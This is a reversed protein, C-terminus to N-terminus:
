RWDSEHRCGAVLEAVTRYRQIYAIAAPRRDPVGDTPAWYSRDDRIVGEVLSRAGQLDVPKKPTLRVFIRYPTRGMDFIPNAHKEVEFLKDGLYLGGASDIVTAGGPWFMDAYRRTTFAVEDEFYNINGPATTLAVIPYTLAPSAGPKDPKFEEAKKEPTRRCGVLWAALSWIFAM